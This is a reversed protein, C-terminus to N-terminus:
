KSKFYFLGLLSIEWCSSSLYTASVLRTDLVRSAGIQEISLGRDVTERIAALAKPRKSLLHRLIARASEVTNDHRMIVSGGKILPGFFDQEMRLEQERDEGVQPQVDGWMNTVLVINEYTESGCFLRFMEMTKKAAGGVRYDSIRQFYIVGTINKGARYRNNYM